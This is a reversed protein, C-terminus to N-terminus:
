QIQVPFCYKKKGEFKRTREQPFAHKHDPLLPMERSFCRRSLFKLRFDGRAEASFPPGM